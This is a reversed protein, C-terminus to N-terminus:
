FRPAANVAPLSLSCGCIPCSEGALIQRIEDDGPAAGEARAAILKAILAEHSAAKECAGKLLAESRADAPVINLASAPASLLSAAAATLAAHLARRRTLDLTM